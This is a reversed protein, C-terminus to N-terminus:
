LKLVSAPLLWHTVLGKADFVNIMQGISSKKFAESKKYDNSILKAEVDLEHLKSKAKARLNGYQDVTGVLDFSEGDTVKISGKVSGDAAVTM